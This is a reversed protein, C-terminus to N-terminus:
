RQDLWQSSEDNRATALYREDEGLTLREMRECNARVAAVFDRLSNLM